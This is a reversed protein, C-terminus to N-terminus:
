RQKGHLLISDNNNVLTKQNNKNDTNNTPYM